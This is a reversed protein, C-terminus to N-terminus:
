PLTNDFLQCSFQETSICQLSLCVSGAVVEVALGDKRTARQVLAGAPIMGLMRVVMTRTVGAAAAAAVAAGVVTEVATGVVLFPKRVQLTKFKPELSAEGAVIVKKTIQAGSQVVGLIMGTQTVAMEIEMTHVGVVDGGEMHGQHGVLIGMVTVTVIAVVMETIMEAQGLVQRLVIETQLGEGGVMMAPQGVGDAALPAVLHQVVCQYWPLLQDLQRHSMFPIM